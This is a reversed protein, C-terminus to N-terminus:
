CLPLVISASHGLVLCDASDRVVSHFGPRPIFGAMGERELCPPGIWPVQLHALAHICANRVRQFDSHMTHGCTTFIAYKVVLLLTVGLRWFVHVM